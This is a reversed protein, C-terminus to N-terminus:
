IQIAPVLFVQWQRAGTCLSMDQKTYKEYKIHLRRTTDFPISSVINMTLVTAASPGTGYSRCTLRTCMGYQCYNYIYKKTCMM